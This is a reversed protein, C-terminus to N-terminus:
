SVMRGLLRNLYAGNWKLKLKGTFSEADGLDSKFAVKTYRTDLSIVEGNELPITSITNVGDDAPQTDSVYSVLGIECSDNFPIYSATYITVPIVVFALICFALTKILNGGFSSIIKSHEIGNTVGDPDKTAHRYEMYRRLMTIFFLVALGVGAYVGPWKCACGLGMSIGCCLLPIFTKKLSTDYFTMRTYWFMFFYMLIIFFTVYVDITAIRTQTFHMFDSAFLVTTVAAIWTQRFLKRAFLYFFPLMGIGFLTGMIRWGFPTMGFMRIGLSIIYKGLPPHTNEYCYMGPQTMEYGTRAHYIEDFYTSERFTNREPYLDQEDFLAEFNSANVPVVPNGSEDKFVLENIVTRDSNCTFMVFPETITVPTSGWAFVSEMTFKSAEEGSAVTDGGNVSVFSWNVGDASQYVSFSRSEYNGLFYNIETINGQKNSFDFVLSQDYMTETSWNTQPADTSGLNYLAIAGYVITISLIAIWDMKTFKQKKDSAFVKPDSSPQLLAKPIINELKWKSGVAVEKEKAELIYYKVGLYTVYVFVGVEIAGIVRPFCLGGNM